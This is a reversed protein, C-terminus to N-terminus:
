ESLLARVDHVYDDPLRGYPMMGRLLGKPDIVYVSSSHAVTYSNGFPKREAMVGYNKRVGALQEPTGTGGVFSTDFGHLYARMRDANDREPDVTVYLVQLQEGQAGLRRRAQALTALTTPCVEPCSTFGFGLLVVKGRYNALALKGGSSAELSLEPAARPPEFVGAKLTPRDAALACMASLSVMMATLWGTIRGHHKM